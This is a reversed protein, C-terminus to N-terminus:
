DIKKFENNIYKETQNKITKNYLVFLASLIDPPYLIYYFFFYDFIKEKVLISKHTFLRTNILFLFLPTNPHISLLM